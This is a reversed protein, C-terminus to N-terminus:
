RMKKKRENENGNVTLYRRKHTDNTWIWIRKGNLMLM